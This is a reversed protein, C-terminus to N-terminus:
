CPADRSVAASAAGARLGVSETARPVGDASLEGGCAAASMVREGLGAAALASPAARQVLPVVVEAVGEAVREAM